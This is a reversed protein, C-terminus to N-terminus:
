RNAGHKRALRGALEAMVPDLPLCPEAWALRLAALLDAEGWRDAFLACCELRERDGLDDRLLVCWAFDSRHHGGDQLWPVPFPPGLDNM